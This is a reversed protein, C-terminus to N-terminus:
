SISHISKKFHSLVNKLRGRFNEWVMLANFNNSKISNLTVSNNMTDNAIENRTQVSIKNRYFNKVINSLVENDIFYALIKEILEINNQVSYDFDFEVSDRTEDFSLIICQYNCPHIFINECFSIFDNLDIQEIVEDPIINNIKIIGKFHRSKVLLGVPYIKVETYIQVKSYIQYKNLEFQTRYQHKIGIRSLLIGFSSFKYVRVNLTSGIKLKTKLDEIKLDESMKNFYIFGNYLENLKVFVGNDKIEIIEVRFINNNRILPLINFNSIEKESISIGHISNFNIVKFSLEAGKSLENQFCHLKNINLHIGKYEVKYYHGCIDIINGKLSLYEQYATKLEALVSECLNNRVSLILGRNPNSGKIFVEITDGIKLNDKKLPIIQSNPVFGRDGAENVVNLGHQIIEEIIFSFSTNTCVYLLYKLHSQANPTPNFCASILGGHSLNKIYVSVIEGFKLKIDSDKDVYLLIRTSKYLLVYNNKIQNAVKCEVPIQKIYYRDLESVDKNKICSINKPIYKVNDEIFLDFRVIDGVRIIKYNCDKKEFTINLGSTTVIKGSCSKLNQYEVIKGEAKM